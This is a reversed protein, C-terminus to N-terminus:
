LVKVLRFLVKVLGILVVFIICVFIIVKLKSTKAYGLMINSSKIDAHVYEKAHM